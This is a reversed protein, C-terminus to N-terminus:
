LVKSPPEIQDAWLFTQERSVRCDDCTMDGDAIRPPSMEAAHAKTANADEVLAKTAEGGDLSM